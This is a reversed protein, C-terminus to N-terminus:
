RSYNVLLGLAAPLPSALLWLLNHKRVVVGYGGFAFGGALLVFLSTTDWVNIQAPERWGKSFRHQAGGLVRNVESIEEHSVDGLLQRLTITDVASYRDRLQIPNRWSTFISSRLAKM